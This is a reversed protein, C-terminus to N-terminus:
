PLRRVLDELWRRQAATEPMPFGRAEQLLRLADPLPLGQLMLVGAAVMGTRGIGAFCHIATARGHEVRQHVERIFALADETSSPIDHDPIPHSLFEIGAAACRPAEDELGFVLAEEPQLLSVVVEVGEQRLVRIEDELRDGGAPRPMVGLRRSGPATIWCLNSKM